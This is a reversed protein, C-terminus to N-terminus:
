RSSWPITGIGSYFGAWFRKKSPPVKRLLLSYCILLGFRRLLHPCWTWEELGSHSVSVIQLIVCGSNGTGDRRSAVPRKKLDFSAIPEILSGLTAQQIRRSSLKNQGSLLTKHGVGEIYLTMKVWFLFPSLIPMNLLGHFLVNLSLLIM